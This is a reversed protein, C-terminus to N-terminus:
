VLRLELGNQKLYDLLSSRFENIEDGNLTHDYSYISFNITVSKKNQLINADYYIDVLSYEMEVKSNYKDIVDKIEGYYMDKDVVFNFDISVRQYKTSENFVPKNQKLGAFKAFDIELVAVSQKKDFNQLVKPHLLSIYGVKTGEIIISANNVPHIFDIDDNTMPKLKADANLLLTSMSVIMDKVEFYLEEESKKTSSIAVALHKNEIALNNEDLGTCVRAIEFVGMEQEYKKNEYLCKLLTPVLESRIEDNDKVTSNLVKIYGKTKINLEKNTKVDNWIYSHIENLNFKEALLLKTDYELLHEDQQDVPLLKGEVPKAEINDYGYMRAVEEVLDVAISVDKTARFSPVKVVINEGSATTTFGLSTLINCVMTSNLEVGIYKNIFPMTINITRAPYRKKYVDTLKSDIIINPDIQKLIFVFRNIALTTMEPDLSKEYRSSAETRLGLKIATKRVSASDFCASELFVSNTNDKIESDLGGMVGAVASVEGNSCIVCTGKPLIRKENDLTTFDTDSDLDKVQISKVKEGDFAHMPQGVELMIYNTLDALLNIARMGCYYLRIQVGVPSVNKTVNSIKLGSYRFCNESDVAIKLDPKQGYYSLNEVKMSRLPRNIIASIERAFGYHSWLDPRNTLSKNDVEFITDKIEYAKTIDTGLPLDDTIEWIGSHDDSLGLEKMSCCMGYSTQGLISAVEIKQGLVNSGVKAFATKMGERVNPAGCVVQLLEDGTNVKLIHLKESNPHPMVKEIKAVIVGELDNGKYEVGEIEATKLGIQKILEEANVGKLDVYDNIWNLSIKM